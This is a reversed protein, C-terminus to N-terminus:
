ARALLAHLKLLPEVSESPRRGLGCETAIGFADVFRSAHAMRKRAGAEGDTMHILGLYLETGPRLALNALPRYYDDDLRGRPVPLHIWQLTRRLSRALSNAVTVLLSADVPEKFHKHGADGYCLHYGLEVAEPVWEGYETLKGLIEDASLVTPVIGELVAFEIATDWQVALEAHPIRAAIEDLEGRM